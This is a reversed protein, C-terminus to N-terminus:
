PSGAAARVQETADSELGSVLGQYIARASAQARNRAGLKVLISRVHNKVTNHAIGLEQAIDKNSYGDVIRRLVELERPSVPPSSETTATPQSLRAMQRFLGGTLEPSLPTMGSRLGRLQRFLADPVIDKLLYGDAGFRVARVVDEDNDSVTLIVVRVRPMALKIRRAAELGDCVPMRIDMLVLDPQMRRAQRIAERGDQAEGVVEFDPQADLLRALGKRFLLHNDALVVRLPDM